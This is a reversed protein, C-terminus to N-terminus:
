FPRAFFFVYAAVARRDAPAEVYYIGQVIQGPLEVHTGGVLEVGRRAPPASANHSSTSPTLRNSRAARAKPETLM